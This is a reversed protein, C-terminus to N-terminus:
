SRRRGSRHGVPTLVPRLFSLLIGIASSVIPMTPAPMTPRAVPRSIARRRGPVRTTTSSFSRATATWWVPCLEPDYVGADVVRRAAELRLQAHPAHGHQALVALVPPQRVRLDALEDHRHAPVLQAPHLVEVFPGAVVVHRLQPLDGLLLDRLQLGMGPADRGQVGRAGRDGVVRRDGPLEGLVDLGRAALHPESERDGREGVHWAADLHGGPLITDTDVPQDEARAEVRVGHGLEGLVLLLRPDHREPALVHQELRLPRAQHAPQDVRDRVRTVGEQAHM